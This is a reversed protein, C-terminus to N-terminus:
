TTKPILPYGFMYTSKLSKLTWNYKQQIQELCLYLLVNTELDGSLKNLGRSTLFLAFSVNAITFEKRDSKFM